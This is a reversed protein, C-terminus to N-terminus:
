IKYFMECFISNIFFIHDEKLITKTNSEVIAVTDDLVLNLASTTVEKLEIQKFINSQTM